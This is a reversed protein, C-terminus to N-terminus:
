GYNPNNGAFLRGHYYWDYATLVGEGYIANDGTTQAVMQTLTADDPWGSITAYDADFEAHDRAPNYGVAYRPSMGSSSQPYAGFSAGASNFTLPAALASATAAARDQPEETAFRVRWGLTADWFIGILYNEGPTMASSATFVRSTISNGVWGQVQAKKSGDGAVLVSIRDSGANDIDFLFTGDVITDPVTFSVIIEGSDLELSSPDINGTPEDRRAGAQWYRGGVFDYYLAADPFPAGVGTLPALGTTLSLGAAGIM